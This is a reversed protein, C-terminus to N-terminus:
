HFVGLKGKISFALVGFSQRWDIHLLLIHLVGCSLFFCIGWGCSPESRKGKYHSECIYIFLVGGGRSSGHHANEEHQTTTLAASSGVNAYSTADLHAVLAPPLPQLFRRRPLKSGTAAAPGVAGISPCVPVTVGHRYRRHSSVCISPITTM